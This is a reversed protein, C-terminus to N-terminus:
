KLSDSVLIEEDEDVRVTRDKATFDEFTERTAMNNTEPLAVGSLAALLSVGCMVMFPLPAYINGLMTAIFPSTASGIRAAVQCLTMGQTRVVTPFIEFSWLYFGGFAVNIFCKGFMSLVVKVIRGHAFAKPVAAIGGLVISCLLFSSLVTKKRGYRNSTYITIFNGPIDGLTTLMFNTYIDGGLDSSELSVGYYVLGCSFWGYFQATVLLTLSCNSFLLDKYSYKNNAKLCSSQQLVFEFPECKNFKAMTRLVNEAKSTKGSAYLWRPSKLLAFTLLFSFIMPFSTYMCLKRWEREYYAVVSLLLNGVPFCAQLICGALARKEPVSYESLLVYVVNLCTGTVAGILSRLLIVQWVANTYSLTFSFIFLLFLSLMQTVKRGYTDALLGSFIGGVGWGIFFAATILAALSDKDCVLDLETVISFPEAATYRWETRNLSCRKRFDDDTVDFIKGYNKECFTSSNGVCIWPPNNAAYYMLFSQYSVSLHMIMCLLQLVRQSNGCSGLRRLVSDIDTEVDDCSTNIVTPGDSLNECDM